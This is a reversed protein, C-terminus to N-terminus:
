THERGREMVNDIGIKKKLTGLGAEKQKNENKEYNLSLYLVFKVLFSLLTPPISPVGIWPPMIPPASSAM